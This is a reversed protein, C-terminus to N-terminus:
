YRKPGQCKDRADFAFGAAVVAAAWVVLFWM